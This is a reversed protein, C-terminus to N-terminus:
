EDAAGFSAYFADAVSDVDGNKQLKAMAQKLASKPAAQSGSNSTLVRTPKNVVKEMKAKAEAAGKDYLYAKHLARLAWEGTIAAAAEPKAGNKVAYGVLEHYLQQNWGKIGTEPHSLAAVTAKAETQAMVRVADQQKQVVGGLEETYFRYDQLAEAAEKRIAAFDEASVDERRSLALFDIEAFPQWRAKAKEVAKELAARALLQQHEAASRLEAAAKAAAQSEAREKFADKLERLKAKTEGGLDVEADDPDAEKPEEDGEEPAEPAEAAEEPEEHDVEPTKPDAKDEATAADPELSSFFASAVDDGLDGGGDGTEPAFVPMFPRRLGHGVETFPSYALATRLSM